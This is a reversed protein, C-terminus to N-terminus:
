EMGRVLVDNDKDDDHPSIRLRYSMVSHCVNM